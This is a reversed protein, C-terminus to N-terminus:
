AVELNILKHNEIDQYNETVYASPMIKGALDEVGSDENYVIVGKEVLSPILGRAVKMNYEYDTIYDSFGFGDSSYDSDKITTLFQYEKKTVKM